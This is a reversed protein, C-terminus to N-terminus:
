KFLAAAELTVGTAAGTALDFKLRVIGFVDTDKGYANMQVYYPGTAVIGTISKVQTRYTKDARIRSEIDVRLTGTAIALVRVELDIVFFASADFAASWASTSNTLVDSASWFDVVAPM